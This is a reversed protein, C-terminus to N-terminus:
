ANAADFALAPELSHMLALAGSPRDAPDLSFARAFVADLSSLDPQRVALHIWTDAASAPYSRHSSTASFPHEGCLMEYFVVALAWVDWSPQPTGGRIQEPSMYGPTGIVAGTATLAPSETAGHLSKAIGFDLVKPVDDDVLFINDPKLDRHV